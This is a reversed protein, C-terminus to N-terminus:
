YKEVINSKNGDEAQRDTTGQRLPFFSCRFVAINSVILPKPLVQDDKLKFFDKWGEFNVIFM